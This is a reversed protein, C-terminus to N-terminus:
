KLDWYLVYRQRNVRYYPIMTINKAGANVTTFTLPVGNAVPKMWEAINKGSVNLQHVIDSPVPYDNLDNQDKAFPAPDKIEEMGMEGALVIPGYAIAAKRPNDPTAVTRLSMAYTIQINDGNNWKRNITIYSGPKQNVPIKKGNLMITAGSTAWSPYRLYLPMSIAHDTEITLHTTEEEPYKTEQKLKIGKEKWNLESPIFLNVYLGNNDHYYIAETYKAHNEFGTGVCCWFSNEPTSYVKFSGPKFPMFYSVMGTAPDQTGLIHNYLAQEYYDAYKEDPSWTFLHRTLKLMNYTNCSETTRVSM